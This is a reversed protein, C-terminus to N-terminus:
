VIQAQVQERESKTHNVRREPAYESFRRRRRETAPWSYRQNTLADVYDVWNLDELNRTEPIKMQHRRMGIPFTVNSYVLMDKARLFSICEQHCYMRIEQSYAERM